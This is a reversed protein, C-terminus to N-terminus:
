FLTEWKDALEQMSSFLISAGENLLVADDLPGTNVAITEIGAAVAARVGMPANEVVVAQSADVGALELGKLYPDPFPKGRKVDFSTVMKERTIYGEFDKVVREILTKQGSGTVIHIKLGAAKAKKFVEMAGPMIEAMPMNRFLEAKHAYIEKVEEETAGYGRERLSVQNVTYSGTCGEHM